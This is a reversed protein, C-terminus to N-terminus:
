SGVGRQLCSDYFQLPTDSCNVRQLRLPGSQENAHFFELLMALEQTLLSDVTNCTSVDCTFSNEHGLSFETDSLRQSFGDFPFLPFEFATDADVSEKSVVELLSYALSSADAPPNPVDTVLVRLEYRFGWEYDFGEIEDYFYSWPSLESERTLLCTQYGVGQCSSKHHEIFMTRGTNDSGDACATLFLVSM